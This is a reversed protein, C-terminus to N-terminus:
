KKVGSASQSQAVVPGISVAGTLERVQVRFAQGNKDLVDFSSEVASGDPYFLLAPSWIANVLQVSNPLVALSESDLREGGTSQDSARFSLPEPLEGSLIRDAADTTGAAPEIGGALDDRGYPIAFWRRGAPEYRFQYAAGSDIARVRAGSIATGIAEASRKLQYDALVHELAPVAIASLMLLVGLVLLLEILTLGSRPATPVTACTGPALTARYRLRSPDRGHQM